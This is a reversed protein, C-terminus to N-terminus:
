NSIPHASIYQEIREETWPEDGPTLRTLHVMEFLTGNPWIKRLCEEPKLGAYGSDSRGIHPTILVRFRGRQEQRANLLARAAARSEPSGLPFDGPKPNM